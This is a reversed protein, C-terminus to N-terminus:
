LSHCAEGINLKIQKVVTKLNLYPNSQIEFLDINGKQLLEVNRLNQSQLIIFTTVKM